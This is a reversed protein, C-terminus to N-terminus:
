DCLTSVPRAGAGAGARGAIRGHGRPFGSLFFVQGLSPVSTALATRSLWAGLKRRESVRSQDVGTEAKECGDGRCLEGAPQLRVGRRGCGRPESYSITRAVVESGRRPLLTTARVM